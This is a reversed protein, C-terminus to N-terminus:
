EADGERMQLEAAYKNIIDSNGMDARTSDKLVDMLVDEVTRPKVHRCRDLRLEKITWTNESPKVKIYVTDPDEGGYLHYATVTGKVTSNDYFLEGELEDGMKIPVGNMDLPLPMYCEDVEAQIERAMHYVDRERDIDGECMYSAWSNLKKLSKLEM